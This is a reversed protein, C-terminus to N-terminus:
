VGDRISVSIAHIISYHCDEVVEYLNSKVHIISNVNLSERDRVIAGGDFGVLAITYFGHAKAAELGKVVNPSSGSSSIAIAVNGGEKFPNGFMEIQKSFINEYGCDNGIATVLGPNSVLSIVRPYVWKRVSVSKMMDLAAHESILASDGNGFTLILQRDKMATEIIDRAKKMPSILDPDALATRTMKLYEKM